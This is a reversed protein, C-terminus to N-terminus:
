TRSTVLLVPTVEDLPSTKCTHSQKREKRWQSRIHPSATTRMIREKRGGKHTLMCCTHIACSQRAIQSDCNCSGSALAEQHMAQHHLTSPAHPNGGRKRSGAKDKCWVPMLISPTHNKEGHVWQMRRNTYKTYKTHVGTATQM